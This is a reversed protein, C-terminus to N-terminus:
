GELKMPKGKDVAPWPIPESHTPATGQGIGPAWAQPTGGNAEVALPNELPTVAQPEQFKGDSGRVIGAPTDLKFPKGAM